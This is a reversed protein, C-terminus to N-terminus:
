TSQYFALHAYYVHMCMCACVHLASHVAREHLGDQDIWGDAHLCTTPLTRRSVKGGGTQLHVDTCHSEM